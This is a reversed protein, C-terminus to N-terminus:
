NRRPWKFLAQLDFPLPQETAHDVPVSQLLGAAILEQFNRPERHTRQRFRAVAVAAAVQERRTRIYLTQDMLGRMGPVGFTSARGWPYTFARVQMLGASNPVRNMRIRYWLMVIRAQSRPYAPMAAWAQEIRAAAMRSWQSAPLAANRSMEVFRDNVLTITELPDYSGVYEWPMAARGRAGNSLTRLVRLQFDGRLVQRQKGPDHREDALHVALREAPGAPLDSRAALGLAMKYVDTEVENTLLADSSEVESSALRDLLLFAAEVGRQVRQWDGADAAASAAATLGNGFRTLEEWGNTQESRDLPGRALIDLVRRVGPDEVDFSQFYVSPAPPSADTSAASRKKTPLPDLAQLLQLYTALSKLAAATPMADLTQLLQRYREVGGEPHPLPLLLEPAVHARLEAESAIGIKPVIAWWGAGLLAIGGLLGLIVKTRKTM